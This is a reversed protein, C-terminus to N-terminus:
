YITVKSFDIRLCYLGYSNLLLFFFSNWTVLFLYSVFYRYNKDGICNNLIVCHHDMKNVCKGCISCHHTRELKAAGCKKCEQSEEPNKIDSPLIYSPVTIGLYFNRVLCSFSFVIFITVINENIKNWGFM